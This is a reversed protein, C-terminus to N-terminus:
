VKLQQEDLIFVRVRGCRKMIADYKIGERFNGSKRISNADSNREVVKKRWEDELVRGREKESRLLLVEAFSM